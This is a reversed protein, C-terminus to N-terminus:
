SGELRGKVSANVQADRKKVKCLHAERQWISVICGGDRRVRAADCEPPMHHKSTTSRHLSSVETIWFLASESALVQVLVSFTYPNSYHM